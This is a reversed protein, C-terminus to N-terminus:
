FVMEIWERRVSPSKGSQECDPINIIEIWERRVSPSLAPALTDGGTQYKL